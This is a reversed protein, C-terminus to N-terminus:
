RRCDIWSDYQSTCRSGTDIYVVTGGNTNNVLLQESNITVDPSDIINYARDYVNITGIDGYYYAATDIIIGNANIATNVISSGILTM